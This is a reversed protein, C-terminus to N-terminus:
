YVELQETLPVEDSPKAKRKSKAKAAKKPENERPTSPAVMAQRMGQIKMLSDSLTNSLGQLGGVITLLKMNYTEEGGSEKKLKTLAGPSLAARMFAHYFPNARLWEVKSSEKEEIDDIFAKAWAWESPAAAVQSRVEVLIAESEQMQVILEKVTKESM